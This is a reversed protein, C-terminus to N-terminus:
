FGCCNTPALIAAAPTKAAALSWIGAGDAARRGGGGDSGAMLNRPRRYRWHDGANAEVEEDEDDDDNDVDGLEDAVM